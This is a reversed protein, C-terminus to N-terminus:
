QQPTQTTRSDLEIANIQLYNYVMEVLEKAQAPNLRYYGKTPPTAMPPDMLVSLTCVQPGVDASFTNIYAYDKM